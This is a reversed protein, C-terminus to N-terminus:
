FLDIVVKVGASYRDSAPQFILNQGQTPHSVPQYPSQSFRFSDVYFVIAVPDKLRYGVHLYPSLRKGPELSPNSQFGIDTLHADEWTYFPVKVGIGALWGQGRAETEIGLRAFGILFDEKQISSLTRQWVDVGVGLVMDLSRAGQIDFRHRLQGENSMGLYQTQSSVPTRPPFLTSGEYEVEGGYIRGRYALLFGAEKPMTYEAGASLLAGTEKVEPSTDEKWSFAEVGISVRMQAHAPLAVCAAAACVALSSVSSLIKM